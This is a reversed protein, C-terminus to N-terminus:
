SLAAERPIIWEFLAERFTLRKSLARALAASYTRSCLSECWARNKRANRKGDCAKQCSSARRKTDPKGYLRAAAENHSFVHLGMEEAVLEKAKMEAASLARSGFGKGRFEELIVFDFIWARPGGEDERVHFWIKGVTAAGDEIEYLCHGKSAVGEPLLSAIEAEARRLADSEPWQGAGVKGRAYDEAVYRRCEEFGSESM